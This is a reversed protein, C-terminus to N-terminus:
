EEDRVKFQGMLLTQVNPPVPEHHSLAVAYRGQGATIANLRLQYSALESLPAQGRM